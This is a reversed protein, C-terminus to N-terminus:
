IAAMIVMYKTTIAANQRFIATKIPKTRDLAERPPALHHSAQM